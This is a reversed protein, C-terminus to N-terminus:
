DDNASENWCPGELIYPVLMGRAALEREIAQRDHRHAVVADNVVAQVHADTMFTPVTLFFEGSAVQSRVKILRTQVM